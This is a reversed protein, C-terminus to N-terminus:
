GQAARSDVLGLNCARWLVLDVTAVRDGSDKALRSCMAQVGEDGAIRVLHRDPKCTDVGYNKALHWCTIPGIWPLARIFAIKDEAALYRELYSWREKYVKDIAAAKGQHRFVSAASGGGEVAPRVKRWIGAAVQNKMGSNLVVWAFESWFVLPDSVQQVNQAWEIESGYGHEILAGRLSAYTTYDIMLAATEKGDRSCSM